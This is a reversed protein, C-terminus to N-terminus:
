QNSKVNETTNMKVTYALFISSMMSKWSCFLFEILELFMQELDDTNNIKLTVRKVTKNVKREKM